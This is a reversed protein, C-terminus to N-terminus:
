NTKPCGLKAELLWKNSIEEKSSSDLSFLLKQALEARENKPLHLVEKEIQKLTM